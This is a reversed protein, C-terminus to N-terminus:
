QQDQGDISLKAHLYGSKYLDKLIDILDDVPVKLQDFASALDQLRPGGTNTTDLPVVQKTIVQPNRASPVPAPNVM